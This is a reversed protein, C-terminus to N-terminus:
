HSTKHQKRIRHFKMNLFPFSDSKSRYTMIDSVVRSEGIQKKSHMQQAVRRSSATPSRELRHGIEDLMEETFVRKVCTRKKDLVSGTIRFKKVLNYIMAKSHEPSDSFTCALSRIVAIVCCNSRM